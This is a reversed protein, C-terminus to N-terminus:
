IFRHQKEQPLNKTKYNFVPAIETKIHGHNLIRFDKTSSCAVPNKSKNCVNCLRQMFTHFFTTKKDFFAIDAL